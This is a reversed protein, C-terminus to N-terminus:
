DARDIKLAHCYPIDRVRPGPGRARGGRSRSPVRRGGQWRRCGLRDGQRRPTPVASPCRERRSPAPYPRGAWPEPQGDRPRWKASAGVPTAPMRRVRRDEPEADPLAPGDPSCRKPLLAPGASKRCRGARGGPAMRGPVHREGNRHSRHRPREDPLRQPLPESDTWTLADLECFRDSKAAWEPIADNRM